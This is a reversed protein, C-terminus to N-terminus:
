LPGPVPCVLSARRAREELLPVLTGRDLDDLDVLVVEGRGAILSRRDRKAADILLALGADPVDILRM